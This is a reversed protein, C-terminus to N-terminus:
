QFIPLRVLRWRSNILSHSYTKESCVKELSLSKISAITLFQTGKSCALSLDNTAVATSVKKGNICSKSRVKCVKLHWVRTISCDYDRRRRRRRM